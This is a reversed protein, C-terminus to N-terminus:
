RSNDTTATAAGQQAQDGSSSSNVGISSLEYQQGHRPAHGRALEEATDAEQPLARRAIGDDERHGHRGGVTHRCM